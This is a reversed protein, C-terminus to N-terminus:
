QVRNMTMKLRGRPQAADISLTLDALSYQEKIAKVNRNNQGRFTAIDRPSLLFTVERGATDQGALLRYVLDMFVAEEVLCRFSPHYPGAVISGPKEMEPTTQLGLRIVPIGAGAFEGLAYKCASIAGAMSLPRYDGRKWDEELGTDTFVLTPHLRVLHPRLAVTERVTAAFSEPSDGPLGVMLHLGTEFGRGKLLALARRVDDATHGRRSRQLVSDVLSQAGLEVTQVHFKKLFDLGAVDIYDPRTSIRIGDVLGEGIFQGAMELLERQRATAIGTFNGGYFAIQVPGKDKRRDNKLYASLLEKVYEGTIVPQGEGVAKGQNCFICRHPCGQHPLFLPIILPKAMKNRM